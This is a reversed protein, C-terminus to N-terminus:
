REGGGDRRQTEVVNLCGDAISWRAALRDIIAADHTAIVVASKREAADALLVELLASGTEADVQGTPEDCLLMSPRSVLARALGVRQAQGGSLEEPLQNCLPDLELRELAGLAQERAAREDVGALVLPLAVNEAVDLATVLSPSQFALSVRGIRSSPRAGLAPWSVSGSGPHELGALVHLLTTKGSGSPGIIGIM